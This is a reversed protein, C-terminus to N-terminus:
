LRCAFPNTGSSYLHESFNTKSIEIIKGLNWCINSWKHYAAEQPKSKCSKEVKEM